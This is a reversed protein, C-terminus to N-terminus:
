IAKDLVYPARPLKSKVTLEIKVVADIQTNGALSDYFQAKLDISLNGEHSMGEM